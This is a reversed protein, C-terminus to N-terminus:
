RKDVIPGEGDYERVFERFALSKFRREPLLFIEGKYIIDNMGAYTVLAIVKVMGGPVPSKITVKEKIGPRAADTAKFVKEKITDERVEIM